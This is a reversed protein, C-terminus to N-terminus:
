NAIRSMMRLSARYGEGEIALDMRAIAEEVIRPSWGGPTCPCEVEEDTFATYYRLTNCVPPVIKHDCEPTLKRAPRADFTGAPYHLYHAPLQDHRLSASGDGHIRLQWGTTSRVEAFDLDDMPFGPVAGSCAILSCALLVVTLRLCFM